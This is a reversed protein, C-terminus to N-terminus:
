FTKWPESTLVQVHAIGAFITLLSLWDQEFGATLQPVAYLAALTYYFNARDENEFAAFIWAQM